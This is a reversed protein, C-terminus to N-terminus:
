IFEDFSDAYYQFTDIFRSVHYGDTTAHHCTISLPMKIKGADEYFKGAEVSPFFYDKNEYSHVAFHSFSIWPLCSVTYANEPPVMGSQSLIGHNDGYLRQNELYNDYFEPFDEAYETWMLSFTKDDEHFTAYLPILTDYYGIQGDKVATRFEPFMNLIKTTLWLYAPFFKMGKNKLTSRMKTIDVDVTISYGTPAMKSFYYFIQTRPWTSLDIPTFHDNIM